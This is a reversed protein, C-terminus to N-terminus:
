FGSKKYEMEQKQMIEEDTLFYDSTACLLPDIDQSKWNTGFSGDGEALENKVKTTLLEGLEKITADGSLITNPYLEPLTDHYKAQIGERLTETMFYNLYKNVVDENFEKCNVTFEEKIMDILQPRLCDLSSYILASSTDESYEGYMNKSNLATDMDMYDWDASIDSIKIDANPMRSYYIGRGDIITPDKDVEIDNIDAKIAKEEDSLLASHTKMLNDTINLPAFPDVVLREQITTKVMELVESDNAQPNAKYVDTIVADIFTDIERETFTELSTALYDDNAFIDGVYTKLEEKYDKAFSAELSFTNFTKDISQDIIDKMKDLNDQLAISNLESKLAFIGAKKVIAGSLGGAKSASSKIDELKKTLDDATLSTINHEDLFSQAEKQQLKNTFDEVAMYRAQQTAFFGGINKVTESIESFGNIIDDVTTNNLSNEDIFKGVLEEQYDQDNYNFGVESMLAYLKNTNIKTVSEYVDYVDQTSVTQLFASTVEDVVKGINSPKSLNNSSSDCTYDFHDETDIDKVAEFNKETKSILNMGLLAKNYSALADDLSSSITNKPVFQQEEIKNETSPECHEVDDVKQPQQMLYKIPQNSSNFKIM